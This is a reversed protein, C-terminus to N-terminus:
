TRAFAACLVCGAFEAVDPEQSARPGAVNLRGVQLQQAFALLRVAAERVTRQYEVPSLATAACWLHLHPKGLRRAISLTLATGGTPEHTSSFVVTADADRVNWATRQVYRRSPTEVLQYQAPIM